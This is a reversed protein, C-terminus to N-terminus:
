IRDVLYGHLYTIRESPLAGKRYRFMLSRIARKQTRGLSVEKEDTLVLGLVMRKHKRSTFITKRKNLILNPSRIGELMCEIDEVLGGLVDPKDTSFHMDDAYRSYVVGREECLRTVMADFGYLVANAIQPSSPAGVSLRGFRTTIRRIIVADDEDLRPRLSEMNAKIVEFVDSQHISEFFNAFDLLLLFNNECHLRAAYRINTGRRYAVAADHVPLKCLINKLVWRQLFKLERAPHEIRRRGEKRKPITYAKYRHNASHVIKDLLGRNLGTEDAIRELIM